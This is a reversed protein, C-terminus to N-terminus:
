EAHRMRIAGHQIGHAAVAMLGYPDAWKMHDGWFLHKTTAAWALVVPWRRVPHKHARRLADTLTERGTLLAFMDTVLVYGALGIWLKSGFGLKQM